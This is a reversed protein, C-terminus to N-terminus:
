AEAAALLADLDLHTELHGALDDLTQEVLAEYSLGGRRDSRIALLFRHRFADAAFLGHVYTGAVRGDPSTAGDPRPGNDGTLTVVPRATDPGGTEGMHM